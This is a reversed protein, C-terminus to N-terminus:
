GAGKEHWRWGFLAAEVINTKMGLRSLLGYREKAIGALAGRPIM